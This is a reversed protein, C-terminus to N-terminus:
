KSLGQPYVMYLASNSNVQGVEAKEEGPTNVAEVKMKNCAEIYNGAQTKLFPSKKEDALITLAMRRAVIEVNLDEGEKGNEFNKFIEQEVMEAFEGFLEDGGPYVIEIIKM